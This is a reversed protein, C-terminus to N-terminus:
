IMEVKFDRQIDFKTGEINTFCPFEQVDALDNQLEIMMQPSLGSDIKWDDKNDDPDSANKKIALSHVIAWIWGAFLFQVTFSQL